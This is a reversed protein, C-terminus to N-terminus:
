APTFLDRYYLSWSFLNFLGKLRAMIGKKTRALRKYQSMTTEGKKLAHQKFRLEQDVLVGLYKHAETPNITHGRITISPRTVLRTRRAHTPDPERKRTFGILGFKNLTFQCEHAKAWELAGGDRAMINELKKFAKDLSNGETLIM